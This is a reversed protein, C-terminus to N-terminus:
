SRSDTPSMVALDEELEGVRKVAVQWETFALESEEIQQQLRVVENRWTRAEEKLRSIAYDIQANKTAGDNFFRPTIYSGQLDSVRRDNRAIYQSYSNIKIEASPTRGCQSWAEFAEDVRRRAHGLEMAAAVFEADAPQILWEHDDAHAAADCLSEVMTDGVFFFENGVKVGSEQPRAAVRQEWETADGVEKFLARFVLNLPRGESSMMRDPDRDGDATVGITIRSLGDREVESEDSLVYLEITM